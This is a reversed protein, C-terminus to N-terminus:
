VGASGAPLLCSRVYRSVSHRSATGPISLVVSAATKGFREIEAWGDAGCITATLAIIIINDILNHVKRNGTRPDPLISFAEIWENNM